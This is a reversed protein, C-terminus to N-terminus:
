DYLEDLADSDFLGEEIVNCSNFKFVILAINTESAEFCATFEGHESNDECDITLSALDAEWDFEDLACQNIDETLTKQSIGKEGKLEKKCTVIDSCDCFRIVAVLALDRNDYAEKSYKNKLSPYQLHKALLIKVTFDDENRTIKPIIDCDHFNYTLLLENANM